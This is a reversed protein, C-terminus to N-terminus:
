GNRAAHGIGPENNCFTCLDGYLPAVYWGRERLADASPLGSQTFALDQSSGGCRDCIWTWVPRDVFGRTM